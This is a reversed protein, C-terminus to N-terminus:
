KNIIKLKKLEKKNISPSEGDNLKKIVLDMVKLADLSDKFTVDGEFTPITEQKIVLNQKFYINYGYQKNGFRYVIGNFALEKNKCSSFVQFVIM